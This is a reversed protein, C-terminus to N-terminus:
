AVSVLKPSSSSDGARPSSTKGTSGTRSTTTSSRKSPKPPEPQSSTPVSTPETTPTHRSSSLGRVVLPVLVVPNYLDEAVDFVQMAAALDSLLHARVTTPSVHIPKGKADTLTWAEVGYLLYSEDLAALKEAASVDEGDKVPALISVSEQMTVATRFDLKDRLTVTDGDPHRVHYRSPGPEAKDDMKPPCLCPITVDM